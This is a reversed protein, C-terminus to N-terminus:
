PIFSFLKSVHPILLNSPVYALVLDVKNKSSVQIIRANVLLNSWIFSFIM